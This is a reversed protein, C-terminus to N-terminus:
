VWTGWVYYYTRWLRGPQRRPNVRAPVRGGGGGPLTTAKMGWARQGVFVDFGYCPNERCINLFAEEAALVTMAPDLSSLQEYILRGLQSSHQADSSPLLGPQYSALPHEHCRDTTCYPPCLTVALGALTGPTDVGTYFPGRKARLLLATLAVVRELDFRYHGHEFHYVAEVFAM